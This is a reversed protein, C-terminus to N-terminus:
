KLAVMLPEYWRAVVQGQQRITLGDLQDSKGAFSYLALLCLGVVLGIIIKM